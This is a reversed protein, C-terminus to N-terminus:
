ARMLGLNGEQILDILPLGRGAYRKAISVVLRLNALTFQQTAAADGSEIRQALVVEQQASLLPIGRIDRLYQWVADATPSGGEADAQDPQGDLARDGAALELEAADPVLEALEMGMDPLAPRVAALVTADSPESEEELLTDVEREAVYEDFEKLTREMTMTTIATM